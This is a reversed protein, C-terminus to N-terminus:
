IYKQCNELFLVYTLRGPFKDSILKCVHNNELGHPFIRIMTPIEHLGSRLTCCLLSGNEVLCVVLVVGYNFQVAGVGALHDRHALRDQEVVGDEAPHVGHLLDEQRPDGPLVQVADGSERHRVCPEVKAISLYLWCLHFWRPNDM